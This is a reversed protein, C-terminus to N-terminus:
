VVARMTHVTAVTRDVNQDVLAMEVQLLEVAAYFVTIEVRFGANDWDDNSFVQQGNMALLEAPSLSALDEQVSELFVAGHVLKRSTNSSEVSEGMAAASALLLVAIIGSAIVLEVMSLGARRSKFRAGATTMPSHGAAARLTHHLRFGM